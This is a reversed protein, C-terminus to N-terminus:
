KKGNVCASHRMLCDVATHVDHRSRQVSNRQRKGNGSVAASKVTVAGLTFWGYLVM